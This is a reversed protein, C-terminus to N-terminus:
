FKEKYSVCTSPNGRNNSRPSVVIATQCRASRLRAPPNPDPQRASDHSSRQGMERHQTHAHRSRRALHSLQPGAPRRRHAQHKSQAQRSASPTDQGGPLSTPTKRPPPTSQEVPTPPLSPPKN